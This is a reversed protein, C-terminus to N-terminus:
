GCGMKSSGYSALYDKFNSVHFHYLGWVWVCVYLGIVLGSVLVIFIFCKREGEEKGWFCPRVEAWGYPPEGPCQDGLQQLLCYSMGGLVAAGAWSLERWCGWSHHCGAPAWEASLGERQWAGCASCRPLLWVSCNLQLCYSVYFWWYKNFEIM